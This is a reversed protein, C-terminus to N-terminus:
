KALDELQTPIKKRCLDAYECYTCTKSGINPTFPIEPDFIEDMIKNFGETFFDNIESHSGIKSCNKEGWNKTKDIKLIPHCIINEKSNSLSYIVLEIEKIDRQIGTLKLMNAYLMLQFVNKASRKQSDAVEANPDFIYELNGIEIQSNGSKYDVIRVKQNSDCHPIDLRDIAFTINVKHQEKPNGELDTDTGCLYQFKDSAEGGLLLIPSLQLDANLIDLIQNKLNNAIMREAGYLPQNIKPDNRKIRYYSHNIARIIEKKILDEDSIINLIHEKTLLIEEGPNLIRNQKDPPFYLNEMVEHVITGQMAPDIFNTSEKEDIIKAVSSYYFKVPCECYKKLATASFNLREPSKSDKFLSLKTMVGETKNVPLPHETPVSPNFQYSEHRINNRAFLHELQLLYRSKGGSRMGDGVRDDYILTVSKARSIMRYFYYSFLSEQYNAHPLGYGIRLSDPIFTARRSRRPMVSDNLSLIILHDFDISRTELLGMVQLGELPEGHFTITEGSILKDILYFIGIPQLKIQHKIVASELRQIANIYYEIQDCDINKKIYGENEDGEQLASQLDFLINRIHNITLLSNSNEPIDLVRAAKGSIESIQSISLHFCHTENIVKIIRAIDESGVLRIMFPHSLLIKLDEYYFGYEGNQLKRRRTHIRRLHHMFSAISTQRLSYGMTINVKDCSRISDEQDARDDIQPQPLSYILPLLLNEDPLVVAVKAEKWNKDDLSNKLEEIKQAAIKTQFSNSPSAIFTINSTIQDTESTQIYRLAWNPEPFNKRNLKLFKGATSLPNNLIPGTIDWFFDVRSEKNDANPSLKRIEEFILAECTSLANFGVFILKKWSKLLNKGDARINLLAKRYLLGPTALQNKELDANLEHYLPLLLEWYKLFGKKIESTTNSNNQNPVFNKWFRQIDSINPEYGFYKSLVEIQEETLFNSAIDNYDKINKLISEPDVFYQDIESFDALMTEGVSRFQEFDPLHLDTLDISDGSETRVKLRYLKYLRFLADINSTQDLGSIKSAFDSISMMEPEILCFSDSTKSAPLNKVAYKIANRFFTSSRKNPFVFCFESLDAFNEVYASAISQLFPIIDQQEMNFSARNKSNMICLYSFYM